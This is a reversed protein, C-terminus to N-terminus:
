WRRGPRRGADFGDRAILTPSTPARSYGVNRTAVIAKRLALEYHQYCDNAKAPGASPRALESALLFALADIFLTPYMPPFDLFAIYELCEFESAPLNCCLLKGTGSDSAMLAFEIRAETPTLAHRMGEGLLAIPTVCDAPLNYLYQWGVRTTTVTIRLSDGIGVPVVTTVEGNANPTWMSLTYDTVAELKTAAGGSIREVLVQTPNVFAYAVTFLSQGAGPTTKAQASIEALRMQKTAWQWRHAELIRKLAHPYHLRCQEAVVSEGPTELESAVRDTHGARSLAMNWIQLRDM